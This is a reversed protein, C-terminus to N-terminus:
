AIASMAAAALVTLGYVIPCPSPPMLDAQQITLTFSDLRWKVSARFRQSAFPSKAGKSQVLYPVLSTYSM